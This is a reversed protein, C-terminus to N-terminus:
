LTTLRLRTIEIPADPIELKNREFWSVFENFKQRNKGVWEGFGAKDGNHLIWYNYAELHGADRVKRMYELFPVVIPNDYSVRRTNEDLDQLCYEILKTRIRHLSELTVSEEGTVASEIGAAYIPGFPPNMINMLKNFATALSDASEAVDALHSFDVEVSDGSFVIHEKYNNFLLGSIEGNREGVPQINMFIEGYIMSWVVESSYAFFQAARYYNSAFMPAVCIGQEFSDLAGGFNGHMGRVVGQELYLLGSEPFREIGQAYVDLAKQPDGSMDYCNGMLQYVLDRCDERKTMSKLIKIAQRYDNKIVYAYAMEYPYMFEDPDLKVALKLLEIGKDPNGNDVLEVAKNCLAKADQKKTDQGFVFQTCVLCFLTLLLSKFLKKM